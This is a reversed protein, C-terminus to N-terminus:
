NGKLAKYHEWQMFETLIYEEDEPEGLFNKVGIRQSGLHLELGAPEM